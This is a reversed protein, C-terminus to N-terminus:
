MFKYLNKDNYNILADYYYKFHLIDGFDNSRLQVEFVPTGVYPGFPPSLMLGIGRVNGDDDFAAFMDGDEGMQEGNYLVIGGVITATFEYASPNDTWDPSDAFSIAFIIGILIFRFCTNINSRNKIPKM